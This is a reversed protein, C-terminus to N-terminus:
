DAHREAVFPMNSPISSRFKMFLLPLLAARWFLRCPVLRSEDTVVAIWKIFSNV